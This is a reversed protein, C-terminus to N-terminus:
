GGYGSGSQSLARRVAALVKERVQEGSGELTCGAAMAHGGGGFSLAIESVDVSGDSRLSVRVQEGDAEVFLMAVRRGGIARLHDIIGDTDSPEAGTEAFDGRTLMSSVIEPDHNPSLRALATGLLHTAAVSREEYIRRAIDNPIAGAAALEAAAHLSRATTNAYSFRGTDTLVGAYLCTAIEPDVTAGLSKVLDYVIEAAAGASSDVLRVEGFTQDTGHHDLDIVHPLSEFAAALPGLRALGDCDVVIGLDAAWEPPQSSLRDATPLFRYNDPAPDACLRAVRKGQAELALSLGLLCGLADGDPRIHTGVYVTSSTRILAIARERARTMTTTNM